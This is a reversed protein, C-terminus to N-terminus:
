RQVRYAQIPATPPSLPLLWAPPLGADLRKQLSDKSLHDRDGHGSHFRCELVYGIGAQRAMTQSTGPAAGDAPAALIAHAKLIGWSMRHYPAALTSDNTLALVFPGLDVESLVLGPPGANALEDYSDTDFCHESPKRAPKATGAARPGSQPKVKPPPKRDVQKVVAIVLQNAAVPTALGAAVLAAVVGAAPFLGALETAAAAIVPVAFWDTYGAMRIADAGIVTALLLCGGTLPWAVDRRRQRRLGLGIWAAVGLVWPTVAEAGMVHNHKWVKDISRVETVFNLWIPRIRPDVDAFFGHRCNPYLGFYIAGALAGVAALAGLRWAPSREATLATAAVLGAAAVALAAVLNLALADCAM